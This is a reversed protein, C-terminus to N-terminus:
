RPRKHGGLGGRGNSGLVGSHDELGVGAVGRSGHPGRGRAGTGGRHHQCDVLSNRGLLWGAVATSGTSLSQRRPPTPPRAVESCLRIRKRDVVDEHQGRALGGEALVPGALKAYAETTMHVADDLRWISTGNTTVRERLPLDALENLEIPDIVSFDLNIEIGFNELL